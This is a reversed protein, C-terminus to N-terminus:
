IGQLAAATRLIFFTGSPNRPVCVMEDHILSNNRNSFFNILRQVRDCMIPDSLMTGQLSKYIPGFTPDDFYNEKFQPLLAIDIIEVNTFTTDAQAHPVRSSTDGLVHIKGKQLTLQTINFQSLFELLRAEGSSLNPKSFIIYLRITQSLKSPIM